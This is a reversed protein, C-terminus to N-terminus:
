GISSTIGEFMVQVQRGLLDVLAPEGGRYGVVTLNVGTMAMFLEGFMHPPSGFFMEGIAFAAAVFFVWAVIMSMPIINSAFFHIGIGLLVALSILVLYKVSKKM